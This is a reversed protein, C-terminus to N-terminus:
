IHIQMWGQVLAERLWWQWFAHLRKPAQAADDCEIAYAMAAAGATDGAENLAIHVDTLQDGSLPQQDTFVHLYHLSELPEYGCVELLAKRAAYGALYASDPIDEEDRGWANGTAHYSFDTYRQVRWSDPSLRGALIRQSLILLRRPMREDPLAHEFIPLVRQATVVATWGRVQQATMPTLTQILDYITRRTKPHLHHKPHSIVEHQASAIM